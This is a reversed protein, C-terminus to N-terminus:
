KLEKELRRLAQILHNWDPQDVARTAQWRLTQMMGLTTQGIALSFGTPQGFLAHYDEVASPSFFLAVEDAEAPNGHPVSVTSYVELVQFRQFWNGLSKELTPLRTEGCPFLIRQKAREPQALIGEVLAQAHPFPGLDGAKLAPMGPVKITRAGVVYLQKSAIQDPAFQRVLWQAAYKSSLVLGDCADFPFTPDLFTVHRLPVHRWGWGQKEILELVEARPKEIQTIYLKM